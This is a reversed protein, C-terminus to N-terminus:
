RNKQKTMNKKLKPKGQLYVEQINWLTSIDLLPNEKVIVFNAEGNIEIKGKYTQSILSCSNETLTKFIFNNKPLLEKLIRLEQIGSIGPFSLRHGSGSGLFIRRVLSPHNKIFKLYSNYEIKKENREEDTQTMSYLSETFKSAYVNRFYISKKLEELEKQGLDNETGDLHLNRYVNLLPTYQIEDLHEKSIENELSDLIPHLINRNGSILTDMISVSDAYTHVRIRLNKKQLILRLDNLALSNMPYKMDENSRYFIELFSGETIKSIIDELKSDADLLTFNKLKSTGFEKSNPLISVSSSSIIPSLWKNREAETKIKQIEKGDSVSHIHTFGYQLFSELKEAKSLNPEAGLTVYVDCFSPLMYLSKKKSDISPTIKRIIGNEFYIDSPKSFKYETTLYQVNQISESFISFFFLFSFLCIRM